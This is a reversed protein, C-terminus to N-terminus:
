KGDNTIHLIILVWANLKSVTVKMCKVTFPTSLVNDNFLVIYM